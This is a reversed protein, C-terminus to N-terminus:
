VSSLLTTYRLWIVRVKVAGWSMELEAPLEVHELAQHLHCNAESFWMAAYHPVPSHKLLHLDVALANFGINITEAAGTQGARNLAEFLSAETKFLSSM